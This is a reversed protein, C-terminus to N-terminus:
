EIEGDGLSVADAADIRRQRIVTVYGGGSRFGVVGVRHPAVLDAGLIGQQVAMKLDIGADKVDIPLVNLLRHQDGAAAKLIKGIEARSRAITEVKRQASQDASM